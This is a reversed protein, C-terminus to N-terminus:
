CLAPLIKKFYQLIGQCSFMYDDENTDQVFIVGDNGTCFKTFAYKNKKQIM